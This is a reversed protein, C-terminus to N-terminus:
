LQKDRRETSNIKSKNHGHTCSQKLINPFPLSGFDNDESSTSLVLHLYQLPKLAWAMGWPKICRIICTGAASDALWWWLKLGTNDPFYCGVTKWQKDTYPCCKFLVHTSKGQFVGVYNFNNNAILFIWFLFLIWAIKSALEEQINWAANFGKADLSISNM